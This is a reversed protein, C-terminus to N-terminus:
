DSRISYTAARGPIDAYLVEAQGNRFDLRRGARRVRVGGPQEMAFRISGDRLTLRAANADVQVKTRELGDFVLMPYNVRIDNVAPGEVSDEVTVGAATLTITERVRSAGDLPGEFTVCFSVERPTQKLVQVVPPKKPSYDALRHWKNSADRWAPGVCLNEGGLDAKTLPDFKHVVGDSPGLQPNTGRLHVRILGTPNYRLDGATEFEIYNGDANAFVKHFDAVLPVVFGGVDAPAPREDITEDSYLYAVALLWCALLNYQSQASYREYGHKAEIPYRNKVVFGSGDPRLWREISRLALHAARKFAGAKAVAAPADPHRAFQAAFIECTVASQAENWIHQASRGGTPCEGFPSQMLLTMWAGRWLRDRYYDRSPGAYGECLLTSLFQRSFEDYVIPVNPDKYMGLDTFYQRQNELHLELFDTHAALSAKERLYEGALAVVNHNYVVRKRRLNDPHLKFPDVSAIRQRWSEVKETPAVLAYLDLALMVPQVYFEGHNHACRYEHMANVSVDMARVGSELLGPDLNYATTHLLAVSLAYCPTSYQWEMKMVPDIIAGSDDQCRRFVAVQGNIIRLYDQATLGTDRFGTFAAQNTIFGRITPDLSHDTVAELAKAPLIDTAQRRVQTAVKAAKAPRPKPAYRKGVEAVWEGLQIVPAHETFLQWRPTSFISQYYLFREHNVHMGRVAETMREDDDNGAALLRARDLHQRFAAVHRNEEREYEAVRPGIQRLQAPTLELRRATSNVTEQVSAELEEGALPQWIRPAASPERGSQGQQNAIGEDYAEELRGFICNGFLVGLQWPSLFDATPGSTYWSTERIYEWTLLAARAERLKQSVGAEDGLAALQGMDAFVRGLPRQYRPLLLEERAQTDFYYFVRAQERTMRCSKTMRALRGNASLWQEFAPGDPPLLMRTKVRAASNTGRRPTGPEGELILQPGRSSHHESSHFYVHQGWEAGKVDAALCLGANQEPHDLWRQAVDAPLPFGMWESPDLSATRTSLPETAVDTGVGPCGPKGAWPQNAKALTWSAGSPDQACFAGGEGWDSNAPAVERIIVTVPTNQVFCNPRYLRLTAATVRGCSVRSLDFRLVSVARHEAYIGGMYGAEILPSGGFNLAAFEGDLLATDHVDGPAAVVFQAATTQRCSASAAAAALLISFLGRSLIHGFAARARSVVSIRLTAHSGGNKM